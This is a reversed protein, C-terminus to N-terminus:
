TLRRFSAAHGDCLLRREIEAMGEDGGVDVGLVAQGGAEARAAAAAREVGDREGERRELKEGRDIRDERADHHARRM